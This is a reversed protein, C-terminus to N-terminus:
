YCYDPQTNGIEDTLQSFTGPKPPGTNYVLIDITGFSRMVENVLTEVDGKVTLDAKIALV